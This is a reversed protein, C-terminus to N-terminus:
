HYYTRGKITSNISSSFTSAILMKTRLFHTNKHKLKHEDELQVRLQAAWKSESDGQIQRESFKWGKLDAAASLYLGAWIRRRREWRSVNHLATARGGGGGGVTTAPLFLLNGWGRQKKLPLGESWRLSFISFVASATLPQGLDSPKTNILPRSCVVLHETCFENFLSNAFFLVFFPM